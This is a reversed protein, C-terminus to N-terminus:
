DLQDCHFYVHIMVTTMRANKHYNLAAFSNRVPKVVQKSTSFLQFVQFHGEVMPIFYHITHGPQTDYM